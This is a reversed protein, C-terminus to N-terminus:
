CIAWLFHEIIYDQVRSICINEGDDLSRAVTRDITGFDAEWM